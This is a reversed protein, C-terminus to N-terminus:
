EPVSAWRLTGGGPVAFRPLILEDPRLRSSDLHDDDHQVNDLVAPQTDDPDVPWVLVLLLRVFVHPDQAIQLHQLPQPASRHLDVRALM